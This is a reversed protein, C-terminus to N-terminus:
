VSSLEVMNLLRKMDVKSYRQDCPLFLGNMVLNWEFSGEEVRGLVERWYTPIFVRQRILEGKSTTKVNPLFPYCLPAYSEDIKLNLQNHEGLREHLYLANRARATRVREYDVSQLLRETLCSMGQISLNSIAQEAELYQQYASEPSHTLRSILHAMRSESSSDRQEPQKIRPDNSYLLGGDPLGLFKRPSYITALTEFPECFLAQSNDIVVNDAGYQDIVEHAQRDCVGFYNVYLLVSGWNLTVESKVGFDDTLDYLHLEVGQESLADIMTNCIYRPLWVSEVDLQGVFSAFAARASNFKRTEALWTWSHAPLELELYGGLADTSLSM